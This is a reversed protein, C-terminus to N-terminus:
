LFTTAALRCFHRGAVDMGHSTMVAVFLEALVLAGVGTNPLLLRATPQEGEMLAETRRAVTPGWQHWQRLM